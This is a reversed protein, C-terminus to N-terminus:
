GNNEDKITSNYIKHMELVHERLAKYYTKSLNESEFSMTNRMVTVSDYYEEASMVAFKRSMESQQMKKDNGVIADLMDAFKTLNLTHAAKLWNRQAAFVVYAMRDIKAKFTLKTECKKVLVSWDAFEITRFLETFDDLLETDTIFIKKGKKPPEKLLWDKRPIEINQADYVLERKRQALYLHRHVPHRGILDIIQLIASEVDFTRSADPLTVLYFNLCTMVCVSTYQAATDGRLIENGNPQVFLKYRTQLDNYIQIVELEIASTNKLRPVCVELMEHWIQVANLEGYFRELFALGPYISAFLRDCFFESRLSGLREDTYLTIM